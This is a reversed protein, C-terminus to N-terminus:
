QPKMKSVIAEFDESLLIPTKARQSLLWRKVSWEPDSANIVLKLKEKAEQFPVYGAPERQDLRVIHYGFDTKIPKDAVQGVQLKRLEHALHLDLMGVDKLAMWGMNGGTKSARQPIDDTFENAQGAFDAGGKITRLIEDAKEKQSKEAEQVLKELEAGTSEPSQKKVQTRVSEVPPMDRAPAAIVIQSWKVRGEHKFFTDRNQEYVKTLEADSVPTEREIKLKMLEVLQAKLFEQKFEEAGLGSLRLADQFEKTHKKEIYRNFAAKEMGSTKAANVLLLQNVLADMVGAEINRSGAKFALGIDLAAKDFQPETMKRERLFESFTKGGLNQPLRAAQLVKKKEDETLTVGQDHARKIMPQAIQQNFLVALQFQSQENAYERKFDRAVIPKGGVTCIVINDPLLAQRMIPAVPKLQPLDPANTVAKEPEPPKEIPKTEATKEDKGETTCASIGFLIFPVLLWAFACEMVQARKLEAPQKRKELLMYPM